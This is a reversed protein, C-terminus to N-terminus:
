PRVFGAIPMLDLAAYEIPSSPNAAHIITNNGVYIGVHHMDSYYMVLDGPQLQSRSVKPFEAYQDRSGHSMKVGAAGWAAMTLGSCDYANPGAAGWIYPKGLQAKAFAVAIAARSDAPVPLNKITSSSVQSTAVARNYQLRQAATLHGLLTKAAQEKAEIDAKQQAMLARTRALQALEDTAGAKDQNLQRQLESANRMTAMKDDTIRSLTTAQQLYNDPSQQLMLQLTTDVGGSEYQAAALGGLASRASNLSNQEASIRAQLQDVKHQLDNLRSGAQNYAETAQEAQDHLKDVQTKVDNVNENPDANASPLLAVSGAAATALTVTVATRSVPVYKKPARHAAEKPSTVM